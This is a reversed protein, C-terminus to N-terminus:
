SSRRAKPSLRRGAAGAPVEQMPLILLVAVEALVLLSRIRGPRPLHEPLSVVAVVMVLAEQKIRKWVVPVAAQAGHRSPLRIAGRPFPTHVMLRSSQRRAAAKEAMTKEGAITSKNFILLVQQNLRYALLLGSM